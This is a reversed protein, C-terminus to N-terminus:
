MDIGAHQSGSWFAALKQAFPAKGGIKQLRWQGPLLHRYRATTFRRDILLLVGRDKESRIVRGAAQLVRNIGPYQYAFEFGAGRTRAFYDRILDRELCIGPLGVGVIVAGCLRDGALDIGEGFIGGMVAFGVLTRPNDAAFRDLFAIREAEPMGPTQQLTEIHPCRATFDAHLKLLYAYSPFFLLYNGRRQGVLTLIAGLVPERTQDRHRYLTSIRDDVFLGLNKEPFPSPLSLKDVDPLCGFVERFYDAPTLTASFFTAARARQLAEGLQRAPDICFLKLRLNHATQEYCTVYSGDYQEAVRLFGSVSFYLELLGERFPAPRNRRLWRDASQSFRRLLPYLDDPPAKEAGAGGEADCKSRAKLFWTNIRGMTEYLEPLAEQLPRRVDLFPQKDVVASFMERSRDVLNHAEDILFTYDDATEQFFRRLYVRPDFAYNYDCIIIDAWLSMELALEFPCVRFAAAAAEVASRTLSDQAFLDGLAHNIRDYHGRAFECEIPDCAAEPNFCIKDKATLTLSKIRLGKRRMDDLTKEAVPQATTRATLYFIKAHLNEALAKVAPFLVAATKGIGTAAQIMLQHRDKITRYVSVAMRRQGPRYDDYPFPTDRISQDRLHRWDVLKEAWALYRATLDLFFVELERATFTRLLERTEGSDMQYYVLRVDVAALQHALAYLHAYCRAQGWHVANERRVQEDLSRTTTKIEEVIVRGSQREVGDIRGAVTLRFRETEIEHSVAVEATYDAPRDQQLLQHARIAELARASSTFEFSLDGSRLVHEALARVAIRLRRKM